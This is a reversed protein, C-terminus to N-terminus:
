STRELRQRYAMNQQRIVQVFIVATLWEVMGRYIKRCRMDANSDMRRLWPVNM